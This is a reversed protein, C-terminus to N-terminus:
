DVQGDELPSQAPRRAIGGARIEVEISVSANSSGVVQLQLRPHAPRHQPSGRRVPTRRGEVETGADRPGLSAPRRRRRHRGARLSHRRKLAKPKSRSRASGIAYLVWVFCLSGSRGDRQRKALHISNALGSPFVAAPRSVARCPAVDGLRHVRNGGYGARGLPTLERSLRRAPPAVTTRMARVM